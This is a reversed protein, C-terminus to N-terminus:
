DGRRGDRDGVECGHEGHLIWGCKFCMNTLKKYEFSVWVRSGNVRVIGGRM